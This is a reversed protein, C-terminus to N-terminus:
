GPDRRLGGRLRWHQDRVCALMALTIAILWGGLMAFRMTTSPSRIIALLIGIHTLVAAVRIIIALRDIRRRVRRRRDVGRGIGVLAEDVNTGPAMMTQIAALQPKWDFIRRRLLPIYNTFILFPAAFFELLLAIGLDRLNIEADQEFQRVAALLEDM